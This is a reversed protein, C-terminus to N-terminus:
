AEAREVEWGGEPEPVDKALHLVGAPQFGQSLLEIHGRVSEGWSHEVYSDLTLRPSGDAMWEVEVVEYGAIAASEDRFYVTEGVQPVRAWYVGLAEFDGWSGGHESQPEGVPPPGAKPRMTKWHIRAEGRRTGGQAEAVRDALSRICHDRLHNLQEEYDREGCRPCEWCPTGKEDVADEM